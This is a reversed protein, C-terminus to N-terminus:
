IRELTIVVSQEGITTLALTAESGARAGIAKRVAEVSLSTDRKIIDVGVGKYKRKLEKPRYPEIEVIKYARVPLAVSPLERAFAFGNNSWIDGYPRLAAIAVRGKQLAVDPILLYRWEERIGRAEGVALMAEPEFEWEGSGIVAVRLMSREAGTYINLEKCEGGLSVVEVVSNDLLRFAEACDFMPSLKIAVRDAIERLRPMMSLVNPSCDEMCVMKNGKDSRRDPDVFIWDFHESCERVYEESSCSVVEVNDIGMLAMNYRVVEALAEDREVSVVREFHRALAMTDIGLGCTLDLVSRGSLPKREASEESSCQEFARPPIVCRHKYLTPLKRRARQLYKVQTAVHAAHPVGRRLAVQAPDCEINQEVASRVEETSLIALNYDMREIMM